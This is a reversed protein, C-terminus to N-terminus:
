PLRSPLRAATPAVRSRQAPPGWREPAQRELLWAAARWSGRHAALTTRAVLDAECGARAGAVAARLQRHEPRRSAMWRQYTRSSIGAVECALALTLGARVGGVLRAETEQTLKTPRSM